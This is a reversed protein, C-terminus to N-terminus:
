FANKFTDKFLYIGIGISFGIQSYDSHNKFSQEYHLEPEITVTRNLFFTYGVQVSPLFDDYCDRHKYNMSAGLYFGNQTIHYRGGAGVTLGYPVDKQKDVALLGTVMLNDQLFYGVKGQLDFKGKTLGSYSLDLGSLSAGVYSKGKEFQANAGVAVMLGFLLMAIKKKM